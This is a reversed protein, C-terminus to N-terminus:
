MRSLTAPSWRDFYVDCHKQTMGESVELGITKGTLTKIFIQMVKGSVVNEM